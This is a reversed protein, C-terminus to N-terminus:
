RRSISRTQSLRTTVPRASSLADYHGHHLQGDVVTRLAHIDGAVPRQDLEQAVAQLQESGLFAAALAGAAGAGHEDVSPERARAQRQGHAGIARAHRRDLTHAAVGRQMRDLFREHAVARDLAAEARRAQDYRGLGQEVLM